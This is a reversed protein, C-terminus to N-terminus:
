EYKEEKDKDTAKNKKWIFLFCFVGIILLLAVSLAKFFLNSDSSCLSITAIVILICSVVLSTINGRKKSHPQKM